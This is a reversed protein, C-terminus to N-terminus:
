LTPLPSTWYTHLLTLNGPQTYPLAALAYILFKTFNFFLITFSNMKPPNEVNKSAPSCFSSDSYSKSM